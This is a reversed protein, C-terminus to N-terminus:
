NHRSATDAASMEAHSFYRIRRHHGAPTMGIFLNKGFTTIAAPRARKLHPNEVEMYFGVAQQSGANQQEMALFSQRLLYRTVYRRRASPTVYTRFNYFVKNIEPVTVLATTAVGLLSHDSSRATAMLESVRDRPDTDHPLIAQSQWLEVVEDALDPDSKQWVIDYVVDEITTTFPESAMM